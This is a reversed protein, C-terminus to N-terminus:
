APRPGRAPVTRVVPEHRIPISCSNAIFCIDHAADHLKVAIEAHEEGEITVVPRLGIEEFKGGGSADVVLRGRVDDEYAVVRIRRRACLALYSLMHCASIAALFLDEPNHLAADGRFAPDATGILDPKGQVTVRYQRGYGAYHATGEGTNGEWFLRAAYDHVQHPM